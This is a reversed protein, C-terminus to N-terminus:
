ANAWSVHNSAPGHCAECGVDIGSWTTNYTKTDPDYGKQLNTSHCDACMYNWNQNIGTWHLEDDFKIQEEPYLHFWRQGGEAKDRTDWALPLVQYRGGPFEILYQQLPYVGFVYAVPYETLAGNPGETKVLFQNNNKRFTSLKGFYNFTANDFDGLVTEDNVVQMALDHHSEQWLGSQQQHCPVCVESGTYTAPASSAIPAKGPIASQGPPVQQKCVSKDESCASLIGLVLM